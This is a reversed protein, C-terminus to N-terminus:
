SGSTAEIASLKVVVTDGIVQVSDRAPWVPMAQVQETQALERTEEAGLLPFRFQWDRPAPINPENEVVPYDLGNERYYSLDFETYLSLFM